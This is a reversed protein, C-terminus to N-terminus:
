AASRGGGAATLRDLLPHERREPLAQSPESRWESRWDSRRMRREAQEWRRKAVRTRELRLTQELRSESKRLNM